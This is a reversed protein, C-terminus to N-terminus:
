WKMLDVEDVNVSSRNRYLLWIIGMGLVLEAAAITVVFVVMVQGM